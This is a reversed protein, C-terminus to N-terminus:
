PRHFRGRVRSQVPALDKADKVKRELKRKKSGLAIVWDWEM